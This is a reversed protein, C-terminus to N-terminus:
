NLTKKAYLRHKCIFMAFKRWLRFFQVTIKNCDRRIMTVLHLDIAYTKINTQGQNNNLAIFFVPSKKHM